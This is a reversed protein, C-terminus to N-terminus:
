LGKKKYDISCFCWIEYLVNRLKGWDWHLRDCLYKHMLLHGQHLALWSKEVTPEQKLLVFIAILILPIHGKLFTLVRKQRCREARHYIGPRCKHVSFSWLAAALRLSATTQRLVPSAALYELLNLCACVKPPLNFNIFLLHVFNCFCKVYKKASECSKSNQFILFALLSCFYGKNPSCFTYQAWLYSIIAPFLCQQQTKWKNFKVHQWM